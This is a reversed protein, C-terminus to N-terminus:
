AVAFLEAHHTGDGRVANCWMHSLRLNAASHDPILAASQPEIHDLSPAWASLYHADRDIPEFCLQCTWNDREYIALRFRPSVQFKKGRQAKSKGRACKLSCFRAQSGIGVFQAGCWLCPGAVLVDWFRPAANTNPKPKKREPVRPVHVIETSTSWGARRRSSCQRSCSTSRTDSTQFDRGCFDCVKAVPRRKRNAWMSVGTKALRHATYERMGAAKADRCPQCRCGRSYAAVTGCPSKICPRCRADSRVGRTYGAPGGCRSCTVRSRRAWARADRCAVSCYRQNRHLHSIDAQCHLCTRDTM